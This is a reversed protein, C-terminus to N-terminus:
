IVVLAPPKNYKSISKIPTNKIAQYNNRNNSKHKKEGILFNITRKAELEIKNISEINKIPIIIRTIPITNHIKENTLFVFLHFNGFIM